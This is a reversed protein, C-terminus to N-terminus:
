QFYGEFKKINRGFMNKYKHFLTKEELFREKENEKSTSLGKPNYYYLGLIENIKKFKAGESICRLWMDWDGAFRLKEDFFGHNDNMKKRWLPLPGPLCKIMNEKSFPLRSHEYLSGESSNNYFQENETSTQFSDAYVLDINIDVVLSKALIELADHKRTDDVNWLTIFEGTSKKIGMNMTEQVTPTNELRQYIINSYKKLYPEIVEYEKEPSNADLIILECQSFVSQKTVESMFHKIFKKGKYLSTIISIKPIKIPEIHKIKENNIIQEFTDIIQERKAKLFEILELGKYKKFWPEYSAGILKNTTIKCNLIKAEIIVRNFSELWQPFFILRETKSLEEVFKEYSLPKIFEFDINNKKCYQVSSSMGKNINNSYLIANKRIKTNNSMRSLLSLSEDSWLNGGLNVVNDILLNKQLVKAHIISQCLVHKANKYFNKNILKDQPALMNIFKSPDNTSVYKHDHELIVYSFNAFKRKIAEKLKMFNAVIYFQDQNFHNPTFNESNIKKVIHGRLSLSKILEENCIEAGGNIGQELFFDALFIIKKM